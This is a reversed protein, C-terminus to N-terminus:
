NMIRQQIFVHHILGTGTEAEKEKADQNNDKFNMKVMVAEYNKLPCKYMLDGPQKSAFCKRPKIGKIKGENQAKVSVLGDDVRQNALTTFHVQTHQAHAPSSLSYNPVLKLCINALQFM